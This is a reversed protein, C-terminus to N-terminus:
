SYQREIRECIWALWIFLWLSLIMLSLCLSRSCIKAHTQKWNIFCLIAFIEEFRHINIMDNSYKSHDDTWWGCHPACWFCFRLYFKVNSIRNQSYKGDNADIRMWKSSKTHNSQCLQWHKEVGIWEFSFALAILERTTSM